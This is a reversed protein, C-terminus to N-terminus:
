ERRPARLMVQRDATRWEGALRWMGGSDELVLRWTGPSVPVLAGEFVGGAGSALVVSQDRGARTPHVLRLTPRSAGSANASLVVRVRDGQPNFTLTAQLGLRAARAERDLVQNIALGRKYYDDVVLGDDSRLALTAMVIGMAVAAAPPVILLWPWRDRYWPHVSGRMEAFWSSPKNALSSASTM